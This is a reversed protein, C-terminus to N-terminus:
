YDFDDDIHVFTFVIEDMGTMNNTMNTEVCGKVAKYKALTEDDGFLNCVEIETTPKTNRHMILKYQLVAIECAQLEAVSPSAPMNTKCAAEIKAPCKSLNGLLEKLKM